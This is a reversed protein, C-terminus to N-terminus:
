YKNAHLTYSIGLPAQGEIVQFKKEIILNLCNNMLLAQWGFDVIEVFYGYKCLFYSHCKCIGQEFCKIDWVLCFFLTSTSTNDGLQITNAVGM